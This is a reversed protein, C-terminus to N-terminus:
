ELLLCSECHFIGLLQISGTKYCSKYLKVLLPIFATFINEKDIVNDIINNRVRPEQQIMKKM